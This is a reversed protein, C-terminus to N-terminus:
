VDKKSVGASDFTAMENYIRIAAEVIFMGLAAGTGEGLRMDLDLIPRIGCKEFFMKHGSESSLHSFFLYQQIQPAMRCAALAGACSIFGDVVVPVRRSAAGLVLGCIGAIELGGVSALVSLPSALRNRNVDLAREIVRIKHQLVQAAIGTGIGTVDKAACPLLAAYIAASPTTNGIGMEGTGILTTGESAADHALGIGAEVAKQAQEVTMAPGGAMNSTGSRVKRRLLGPADDLPDDVGIDVVRVEIGAHRGLVSVAAGGALINRVMQPTVKRPYASIGESAVGHDGAFVFIRKGYVAPRLSGIACCYRVALEELYGLSGAPKTLGDLRAQIEDRLGADVPEIGALTEDLLSM